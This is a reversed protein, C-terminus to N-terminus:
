PAGATRVAGGVGCHQARPREAERRLGAGRRPGVGSPCRRGSAAARDRLVRQRGHAPAARVPRTGHRARAGRGWRGDAPARRRTPDVAADGPARPRHDARRRRGAGRGSLHRPGPCAHGRAAQRPVAAPRPDGRGRLAPGRRRARHAWGSWRADAARQRVAGGAARRRLAPRRARWRAARRHGPGARAPAPHVPRRVRRRVM